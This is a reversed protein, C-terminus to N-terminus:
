PNSQEVKYRIRTVSFPSKKRDALEQAYEIAEAKTTLIAYATGPQTPRHVAYGIWAPDDKKTEKAENRYRVPNAKVKAAKRAPNSHLGSAEDSTLYFDTSPDYYAGEAPDYYVVRGNRMLFPGELGKRPGYGELKSPFPEVKAAKRAPNSRLMARRTQYIPRDGYSGAPHIGSGDFWYALKQAKSTVRLIEGAKNADAKAKAYLLAGQEETDFTSEIPADSEDLVTVRWGNRPRAPNKRAEAGVMKQTIKMPRIGKTVHKRQLGEPKDCDWAALARNIASRPDRATRESTLKDRMGGMRACFSERRAAAAPWRRAQALTVPRKLTM